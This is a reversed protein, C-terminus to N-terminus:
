RAKLDSNSLIAACIQVIEPPVDIARGDIFQRIAVISSSKVSPSKHKLTESIIEFFTTPSLQKIVVTVAKDLAQVVKSSHNTYRPLAHLLINPLHSTVTSNEITAISTLFHLAAVIVIDKDEIAAIATEIMQGRLLQYNGDMILKTLEKYGHVKANSNGSIISQFCNDAAQNPKPNNTKANNPAFGFKRGQGQNEMDALRAINSNNKPPNKDTKLSECFYKFICFIAVRFVDFCTSHM